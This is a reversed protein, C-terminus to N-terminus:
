KMMMSLHRNVDSQLNYFKKCVIARQTRLHVAHRLKDEVELHFCVLSMPRFLPLALGSVPDSALGSVAEDRCLELFGLASTM